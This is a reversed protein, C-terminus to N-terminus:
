AVTWFQWGPPAPSWEEPPEWAPPPEWGEPPAPWTPPAQFVITTPRPPIPPHRRAPAEASAPGGGAKSSAAPDPVPGTSPAQPLAATPRLNANLWEGDLENAKTAHLVVDSKVANGKVIVRAACAKGTQQLREIIPLFEASMAPTLEGVVAGDLSVEVVQKSTRATQREVATLTAHAWQEGAPHLYRALRSQYAEEGKVQIARGFPLLSHASTPPLNTPVCLHPEDLALTIHASFRPTYLDRGRRDTGTWEQYENASIRAPVAPQFGQGLLQRFVPQYLVADEKTLYGVHQGRIVIKVANRDHRNGPEPILLAQEEVETAQAGLTRPLLSRIEKERYKEGAIERRYWDGRRWLEFLIHAAQPPSEDASFFRM